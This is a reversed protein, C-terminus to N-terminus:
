NQLCKKKLLKVDATGTLVPQSAQNTVSFSLGIVGQSNVEKEVRASITLRDNYYVPHRFELTQRLWLAGEGPIEMGIIRSIFSNVLIGHVVPKKFETARCFDESLHLPNKDGSLEAFAKVDAETVTVSLTKEFGVNYIENSM